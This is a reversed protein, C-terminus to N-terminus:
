RDMTKGSTVTIHLYSKNIRYTELIMKRWSRTTDGCCATARTQRRNQMSPSEKVVGENALADAVKSGNRKVHSFQIALTDMIFRSLEM